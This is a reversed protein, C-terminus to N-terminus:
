AHRRPARVDPGKQSRKHLVSTMHKNDGDRDFIEGSEVHESLYSIEPESLFESHASRRSCLANVLQYSTWRCDASGTPYSGTVQGAISLTITPFFSTHLDELFYLGGPKLHAFMFGISVQQQEMTHGGDDIILDFGSGTREVLENLSRRDAQNGQHLHIRPQPQSDPVRADFGHIEANPFYDRWMQLSAGGLVGIELVKSVETRREGLLNQYFGAFGHSVKDTGYRLGLTSLADM